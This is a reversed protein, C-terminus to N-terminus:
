KRCRSLTPPPMMITYTPRSTDKGAAYADAAEWLSLMTSEVDVPEYRAAMEGAGPLDTSSM